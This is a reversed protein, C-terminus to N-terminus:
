GIREGTVREVDGLWRLVASLKVDIWHDVMGSTFPLLEGSDLNCAMTVPEAM